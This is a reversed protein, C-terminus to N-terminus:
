DNRNDFPLRISPTGTKSSFRSLLKVRSDFRDSIPEYGIRPPVTIQPPRLLQGPSLADGTVVLGRTADCEVRRTRSPSTCCGARRARTLGGGGASAHAPLSRPPIAWVPHASLPTRRRRAAM